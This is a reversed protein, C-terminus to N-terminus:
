FPRNLIGSWEGKELRKNSNSPFCGKGLLTLYSFFFPHGREEVLIKERQDKEGACACGSQCGIREAAGLIRGGEVVFIQELM